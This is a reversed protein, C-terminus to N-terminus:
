KKKTFKELKELKEKSLLSAMFELKEHLPLIIQEIKKEVMKEIAAGVINELNDEKRSKKYDEYMEVMKIAHQQRPKTQRDPNNSEWKAVTDRSVGVIKGLEEQSLRLKTRLEYSNIIKKTM